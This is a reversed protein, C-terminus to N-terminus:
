RAMTSSINLFFVAETKSVYYTVANLKGWELVAKAVNKLLKVVEKVLSGSAIFGLDDVVSLFTILPSIESVKDFFRSIYILFLIPSILSDQPIGSEIEKEKNEHEDIVLQIKRDTLFFGRWIVLNENIELDIM